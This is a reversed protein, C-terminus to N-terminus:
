PLTSVRVPASYMSWLVQHATLEVRARVVVDYDTAPTLKGGGKVVCGTDAASAKCSALKTTTGATYVYARYRNVKGQPPVLPNWCMQISYRSIGHSSCSTPGAPLTITFTVSDSSGSHDSDGAFSASATATGVDTNSSYVVAVSQSLGGDGTVQATCPTLAAGTHAVSAPCTIVTSSAAPDITFGTSAGSGAHNGDGDFSAQAMASGAGVNSDYSVPLSQSLGGAGTVEATCPEQASGNFTVSSPCNISVYSDAQMIQFGSSAYSGSHNGDGGFSAEATGWGADTNSSYTVQVSESLGGDGFVQASCPELASGDFVVVPQCDIFVASGGPDITFGASGSSGTHNADGDFTASATAWGAGFNSDYSIPLSQSLGGAGTVEAGCPEQASGNFTVSGSCNVSVTSDAQLIQFGSSASSGTHNGDGLFEASASATGADTNSSYTVQVSEWLGGDGFVQAFCPELASGDFMVSGPCDISVASGGPDIQFSASGSSGTHNADGDFSAYANATGAGGNSDYFVPLSQFLGGAGTVEAGCPEQASGNFRVPGSCHVSVTSDVQDIQFSRSDSSPFHNTDGPYSADVTVMGADINPSYSVIVSQLLGGDGGVMATCPEQFYGTYPVSVPCDITVVSSVQDIMFSSSASSPSHNTDGPYSASVTVMGADINPSYSVPISESLGGDGSVSATCPEQSYGTFPVSTPCDITVHSEAQLIQFGMSAYSGTHNGDGDFTASAMTWGADTNPGYVVAVSQSLGGDGMVSAWCPEKPSGDFTVTPACDLFVASGGPDIQFSASGSSGTHNTDGDFSAYANATGAGGNSDYSVPLSQFLGGAGTVEAGCPEQPMGNFTVSGSCNVSVTSDAQLIQFATSASSGTHNVDGDYTATATASGADTNSSYMVSVPEFLGAGGTVDASCPQQPSGDFTVTGSCNLNVSSPLQLITLSGDIYSATDESYALIGGSCHTVYTGADQVGVLPSGFASDSSAYVACTPEVTWDSPITSPSSEYEIIPVTNGYGFQGPSSATVLQSGVPVAAVPPAGVALTAACMAIVASAAVASRLRGDLRVVAALNKVTLSM